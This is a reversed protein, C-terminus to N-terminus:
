FKEEQAGCLSMAHKFAKIFRDPEGNIEGLNDARIWFSDEVTTTGYHNEVQILKENNLTKITFGERDYSSSHTISKLDRLYFTIKRKHTYDNATTSQQTVHRHTEILTLKCDDYSVLEYSYYDDYKWRNRVGINTYDQFKFNELKGKIWEISETYTADQANAQLCTLMVIIIAFNKM